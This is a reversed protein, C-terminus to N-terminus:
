YSPRSDMQAKSVHLLEESINGLLDDIEESRKKLDETLKKHEIDMVTMEEAAVEETKEEAPISEILIDIDKCLRAITLAYLETNQENLLDQSLEKFECPLASAQLVGVANCMTNAMENVLDQIQTFRDTM